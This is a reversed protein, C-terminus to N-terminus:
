KLLSDAENSIGLAFRHTEAANLSVVGFSNEQAFPDVQARLQGAPDIFYVLNNHTENTLQAGVRITIGYRTWVSNMTSLPGTVFKVNAVNLLGPVRLAPPSSSFRLDNPNTNIIVFDVRSANEGLLTHAEKIEAGLVPCIDNCNAYFALVVVKGKASSLSWERGAQDKLTFRPAAATGIDRLGLFETMPLNAQAAGPVTTTTSTIPITATTPLGLNGDFHQLAEGGLGLVAFAVIAWLIFKPSIPTRGARLAAARDVRYNAPDGDPVPQNPPPRSDDRDGEPEESM